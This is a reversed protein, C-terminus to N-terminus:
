YDAVEYICRCNNNYTVIIKQTGNYLPIRKISKIYSCQNLKKAILDNALSQYVSLIDTDINTQEWKKGNKVETIKM